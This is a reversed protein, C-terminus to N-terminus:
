KWYHKEYFDEFAKVGDKLNLEFFRYYAFRDEYKIDILNRNQQLLMYNLLVRGVRGNGDLFPHINEFRIHFRFIEYIDDLKSLHSKCLDEIDGYVEDPSATTGITHGSGDVIVISENPKSRFNGAFPKSNSFIDYHIQMILVPTIKLRLNDILRSMTSYLGICENIDENTVDAPHKKYQIVSKVDEFSLRSGEIKNTNYTFNILFDERDFDIM